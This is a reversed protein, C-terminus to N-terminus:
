EAEWGEDLNPELSDALEQVKAKMNADNNWVKTAMALVKDTIIQEKTTLQAEDIQRFLVGMGLLIVKLQKRNPFVGENANKEANVIEDEIEVDPRKQTAYSIQYQKLHPFETDVIETPIETIVLQFLRRDYDPLSDYRKILWKFDSDLGPVPSMDTVPYLKHEEEGTSIRILVAPLSM